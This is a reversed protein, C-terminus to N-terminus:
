RNWRYMLLQSLSIEILEVNGADGGKGGRVQSLWVCVRNPESRRSGRGGVM